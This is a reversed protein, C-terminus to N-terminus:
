VYRLRHRHTFVRGCCPFNYLWEDASLLEDRVPGSIAVAQAHRRCGGEALSVDLVLSTDKRASTSSPANSDFTLDPLIFTAYTVELML